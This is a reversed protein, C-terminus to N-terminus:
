TASPYIEALQRQSIKKWGPDNMTGVKQTLLTRLKTDVRFDYTELRKMWSFVLVIDRITLDNHTEALQKSLLSAATRGERALPEALYISPPHEIQCGYIYLSYQDSLDYSPFQELQVAVPKAFFIRAKRENANACGLSTSLIVIAVCLSLCSNRVRVRVM